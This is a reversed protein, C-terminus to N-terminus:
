PTAVPKKKSCCWTELCSLIGNLKDENGVEDTSTSDFVYDFIKDKQNKRSDIFIEIFCNSKFHYINVQSTQGLRHVREQAQREISSNHYPEFLIVTSSGYHLSIAISASMLSALLVRPKRSTNFSTIVDDKQQLSMEGNFEMIEVNTLISKVLKLVTVFQSFIVVGHKEDKDILGPLIRVLESIKSNFKLINGPTSFTLLFRNLDSGCYEAVNHLILDPLSIHFMTRFVDIAPEDIKGIDQSALPSLLKLNLATSYFSDSIVRLKQIAMNVSKMLDMKLIPNEETICMIVLARLNREYFHMICEELVTPQTIIEHHIPPDLIGEKTRRLLFTNLWGSFVPKNRKNWFEIKESQGARLFMCQSCIDEKRNNFPTGTICWVKVSKKSLQFAYKAVVPPDTKSGNRIIHSEDLIARSWSRTCPEGKTLLSYSTIVYDWNNNLEESKRKPGHYVFITPTPQGEYVREIERKWNNIVSIPCLIINGSNVPNQKCHSIMTITKGLGMEDALFGGNGVSEMQQMKPLANIQHPFLTVM